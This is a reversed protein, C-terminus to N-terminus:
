TRIMLSVVVLRWHARNQIKQLWIKGRTTQFCLSLFSIWYTGIDPWIYKSALLWADCLGWYISEMLLLRSRWCSYYSHFSAKFFCFWSMNNIFAFMEHLTGDCNLTRGNLNLFFDVNVCLLIIHLHPNKRHMNHM